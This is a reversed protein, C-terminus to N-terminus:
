ASFGLRVGAQESACASLAEFLERGERDLWRGDVFKYHYGGARAAMWLEHLPPQTNIVIKSGNPFGLELLGGTRQTDIDVVDDQLWRDVAAEISALVASAKAHYQSDSM